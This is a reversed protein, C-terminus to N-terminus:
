GPSIYTCVFVCVHVCMYIFVCIHTHIYVYTNMVNPFVPCWWAKLYGGLYLLCIEISQPPRIPFRLVADPSHLINSNGNLIREHM